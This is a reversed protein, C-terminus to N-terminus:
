GLRVSLLSEPLRGVGAQYRQDLSGRGDGVAPIRRRVTVEVHTRLHLLEETDRRLAVRVDPHVQDVGVIPLADQRRGRVRVVGPRPEDGLVARVTRVSREDPDALLGVVDREVFSAARGKRLTHHVVDRGALLRVSSGESGFPLELRQDLADGRDGVDPVRRVSRAHDRGGVDARLDLVHEAVVRRIPHVVSRGPVVVRM